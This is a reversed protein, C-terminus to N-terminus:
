QWGLEQCKASNNTLKRKEAEDTPVSAITSARQVLTPNLPHVVTIDLAASSTGLHWNPILIDAPRTRCHHFGAGQELRPALNARQCLAFIADRLRNHRSTVHPGRRCTLAHHGLQDLPTGPCLPCMAGDSFLPLGLWWKVLAQIEDGKLSLGLGASPIVRLWGGAEPMACSRLRAQHAPTLQKILDEFQAEDLRSSLAKQSCTTLDSAKLVPDQSILANLRATVDELIPSPSSAGPQQAFSFSSAFAAPAHLHLSRLGFGGLRM